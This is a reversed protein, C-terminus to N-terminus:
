PDKPKKVNMEIGAQIHTDPYYALGYHQLKQIPKM